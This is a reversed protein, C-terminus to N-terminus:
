TNLPEPNRLEYRIDNVWSTLFGRRYPRPHIAKPEPNREAAPASGQLFLLRRQTGQMTRVTKGAADILLIRAVLADIGSPLLYFGSDGPHSDLRPQIAKWFHTEEPHPLATTPTRPYDLPLTACGTLVFTVLALFLLKRLNRCEGCIALMRM